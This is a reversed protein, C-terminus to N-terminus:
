DKRRLVYTRWLLNNARFPVRSRARATEHCDPHYQQHGDCHAARGPRWLFRADEFQSKRRGQAPENIPFRIKENGSTMVKSMLASYETSIDEDDFHKFMRFGMVHQYFDVWTNMQGWGVNGVVHDIHLLGVPRAVRDPQPASVFGPLFPGSYSGREVFTHVTDGYIAISSLQTEGAKDQATFPAQVSKAGRSTTEKWASRADDVWLAISKVGDGHRLVHDALEGSAQLPTTLVFRIKNQELVYSARDRTGTEPGRYAVLNFGMSARYFYAAQKANGVYFELHDTGHMPLFDTEATKRQENVETVQPM